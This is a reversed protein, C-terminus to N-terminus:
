FAIYFPVNLLVFAVRMDSTALVSPRDGLILGGINFKVTLKSPQIGTFTSSTFIRVINSEKRPLDTVDGVLVRRIHDAMGALSRVVSSFLFLCSHM